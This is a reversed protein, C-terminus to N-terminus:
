QYAEDAPGLGLMILDILAREQARLWEELIQEEPDMEGRAAALVRTGRMIRFEEEALRGLVEAVRDVVEEAAEEAVDGVDELGFRFMDAIRVFDPKHLEFEAMQGFANLLDEIEDLIPGRGLSRALENLKVRVEEF